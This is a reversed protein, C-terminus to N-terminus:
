ADLNRKSRLMQRVAYGVLLVMTVISVTIGGWEVSSMQYDFVVHFPPVTSQLPVYMFDPGSRYVPLDVRGDSAIMYAHWDEFCSEKFLIGNAGTTVLIEVRQPNPRKVVYEPEARADTSFQVTWNLIRHLFKSEESNRYVIIHYPLNLGTWITRGSGFQSAVVAPTGHNWLLVEAGARVSANTSSSFGWPYAEAYVAPSFRTFEIGTTVAHEITTLNWTKGFDTARTSAVPLPPPLLPSTSEPSYGTDVVLNGGQELYHRLLNYAEDRNHYDYGYMIVAQFRKLEEIAYDDIFKSGRVLIPPLGENEWYALSRFVNSYALDDGIVLFAPTDIASVIPKADKFLFGYYKGNRSTAILEYSQPKDLFKVYSPDPLGPHPWIFWKVAFWKLLYATEEYNNPTLWVSQLFWGNWEPHLSLAGMYHATQPNDYAYSFWGGLLSHDPIGVRYGFTENVNQMIRTMLEGEPVNYGSLESIRSVGQFSLAGSSTASLIVISIMGVPVALSALRKITSKHIEIRLRIQSVAIGSVLALFITLYHISDWFEVGYMFRWFFYMLTHLALLASVIQFARIAESGLFTRTKLKYLRTVALLLLTLPLISYAIANRQAVIYFQEPFGEILLPTNARYSILPVYLYLSLLIAPVFIVFLNRLANLVGKASSLIMLVATMAAVAAVWIHSQFTLALTLVAILLSANSHQNKLFRILAFISFVLAVSSIFMEYEGVGLWVFWLRSELAVGSAILAGALSAPRDSTLELVIAYVGIATACSSLTAAFNLAFEISWGTLKVVVAVILNPIVSYASHLAFFTGADWQFNWLIYPFFSIVYKTRTLSNYVDNGTPFHTWAGALLTLAVILFSLIASDFLYTIVRRSLAAGEGSDVLNM